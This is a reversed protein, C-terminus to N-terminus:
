TKLLQQNTARLAQEARVRETVDHAIGRVIPTPVGETRLTNHYEWIRREGSRTVVAMLGRAEGTLAIERLYADFQHRFQPDIFDLAPGRIIEEVSYGLVHAAVPNVSLFRGKLDHVCLLSQGHEVLEHYWDENEELARRIPDWAVPAEEPLHREMDEPHLAMNVRLPAAQIKVDQLLGSDLELPLGLEYDAHKNSFTKRFPGHSLLIRLRNLLGIDIGAPFDLLITTM